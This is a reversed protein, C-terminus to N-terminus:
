AEGEKLLADQVAWLRDQGWVVLEGVRFSPVGWVGLATMEARNAEAEARWATDKLAQQVQDWAMGARDTIRRLGKDSGADLGEAWVGKMFSLVFAQGLGLQEALYLTALGRETPRGLPDNVRGFAIGRARAERAADTSIYRRKNAPVPLGRMVMPLVYRLRVQAGTNHGLAFVRPAVIASYPSRLSFYFDVSAPSALPHPRDLDPPPAFTLSPGSELGVGLAQLRQELHYLRDVGWYWEGEYLLMAGLYHGQQARFQDAKALHQEVEAQSAKAPQADPAMPPASWNWLASSISPAVHWFQGANAAAVLRATADAVASEPPQCGPDTFAIGWRQGLLDADRRSYAVLRARDPAAADSPASVVHVVCQVPYKKLWGPLVAAMLASYPDDVQHFYHLTHSRGSAQRRKEAVARRALLRRESLLRESVMPMLLSKLSM